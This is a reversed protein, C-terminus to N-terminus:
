PDVVEEIFRDLAPGYNAVVGLRHLMHALGLV